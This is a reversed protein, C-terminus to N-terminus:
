APHLIEWAHGEPDRFFAGYGGWPLEAPERAVDAGLAACRRTIADVAEDDAVAFSHLSSPPAGPGAFDVGTAETLAGWPYLAYITGGADFTILDGHRSRERWGLGDRYFPVSAEPDRVGLAIMSPKM